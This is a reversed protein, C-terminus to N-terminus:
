LTDYTGLELYQPVKTIRNDIIIGFCFSHIMCTPTSDRSSHYFHHFLAIPFCLRCPFREGQEGVIISQLSHIMDYAM